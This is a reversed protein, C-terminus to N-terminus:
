SDWTKRGMVVANFGDAVTLKKFRKLDSSLRWPLEGDQGIIGQDDMAVIMM